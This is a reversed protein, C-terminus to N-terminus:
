RDDVLLSILDIVFADFYHMLKRGDSQLQKKQDERNDSASPLKNDQM